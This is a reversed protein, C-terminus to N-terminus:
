KRLRIAAHDGAKLHPGSPRHTFARTSGSKDRVEVTEGTGFFTVRQVTTRGAPDAVIEIQEPRFCRSADIDEDFWRQTEDPTLWNGPGLFTMLEPTPPVAYLDAVSSSHLVRGARLSVVRAAEALVLEPVHTAFILSAGTMAIHERIINWYKGARAPDVHVLPEDMLLVPADAALARAVSLRSQEGESLEHPRSESKTELDFATLLDDIGDRNRCAIKLHERATCHAWLGGNQPVWATRPDGIIKGSSPTEFRALLDLLSTKGAGSWGLLATVGTEIKLSVERLRAPELSVAELQWLHAAPM